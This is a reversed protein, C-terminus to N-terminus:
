DKKFDIFLWNKVFQYGEETKPTEGHELHFGLVNLTDMMYFPPGDPSLRSEFIQPIEEKKFKKVTEAIDDVCWNLNHVYAGNKQLLEYWTREKGVPQCYQLVVNSLNIHIIRMFESNLISSFEKEVIETGFLKHLFEYTIDNDPNTLEVHLMTSADGILKDSGTPYKPEPLNVAQKTPRESLALHFGIKEMTDFIYLIKANPNIDDPPYIKEWDLDITSLPVIEGEKEIIEITEKINEVNFSLHHIGPGKTQLHNYWIGEKALPEIFQLVIDGVGVHIVKVFDGNQLNALDGQIKLADFLNHLLQYAEEANPVIVGM